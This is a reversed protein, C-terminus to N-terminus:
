SYKEPWILTNLIFTLRWNHLFPFGLDGFNYKVVRRLKRLGTNTFVQQRFEIEIYFYYLDVAEHICLAFYYLPAFISDLLWNKLESKGVATFVHSLQSVRPSQTLDSFYLFHHHKNSIMASINMYTIVLAKFVECQKQNAQKSQGIENIQYWVLHWALVDKYRKHRHGARV